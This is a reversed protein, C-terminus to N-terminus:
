KEKFSPIDTASLEIRGENRAAQISDHLIDLVLDNFKALYKSTPRIKIQIEEGIDDEEFVENHCYLQFQNVIIMIPQGEHFADHKAGARRLTGKPM